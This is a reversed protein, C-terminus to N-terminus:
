TIESVRAQIALKKFKPLKDVVLDFSDEVWATILEDPISENVIIYNWHKKQFNWATVSSYSSRLTEAIEPDCKVNFGLDGQVNVMAFIKNCVKYVTVSPGFPYEETAEPQSLCISKLLERNMKPYVEPSVKDFGIKGSNSEARLYNFSVTFSNDGQLTLQSFFYIHRVILSGFTSRM